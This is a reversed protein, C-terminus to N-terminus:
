FFHPASRGTKIEGLRTIPNKLLTVGVRGQYKGANWSSPDCVNDPEFWIAQKPLFL